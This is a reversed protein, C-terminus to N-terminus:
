FFWPISRGAGLKDVEDLEASEYYDRDKLFSLNGHGKPRAIAYAAIVEVFTFATTIL